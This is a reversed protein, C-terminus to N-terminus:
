MERKIERGQVLRNGFAPFHKSRSNICLEERTKERGTMKVSLLKAFCGEELEASLLVM